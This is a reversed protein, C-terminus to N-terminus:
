SVEERRKLEAEEKREKLNEIDILHQRDQEKVNEVYAIRAREEAPSVLLRQM